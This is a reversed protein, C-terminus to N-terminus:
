VNKYLIEPNFISATKKLYYEIKNGFINILLQGFISETGSPFCLTKKRYMNFCTSCKKPLGDMELKFMKNRFDLYKNNNWIETISNQNANGMTIDGTIDVCCPSISGDYRIMMTTWFYACVYKKNKNIFNNDNYYGGFDHPRKEVIEDIYNEKLLKIMKQKQKEFDTFDYDKDIMVQFVTYVKKQAEKNKKLFIIINELTREFNANARIREYNKKDYGDFSFSIYNLGSKILNISLENSLLVANTHLLPRIQNKKCYEIFYCINKNILSEGGGFLFVSKASQKIEDIIKKFLEFDMIGKNKIEKNPCMICQLNCHNTPEIWYFKPLERIKIQGNYYKYIQKSFDLIDKLNSIM